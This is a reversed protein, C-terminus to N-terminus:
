HTPPAGAIEAPRSSSPQSENCALDDASVTPVSEAVKARTGWVAAYELNVSAAPWSRSQIARTITFGDGVM